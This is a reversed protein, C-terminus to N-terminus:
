EKIANIKAKITNIENNIENVFGVCVKDGVSKADLESIYSKLKVNYTRLNNILAYYLDRLRSQDESKLDIRYENDDIDIKLYNSEQNTVLTVLYEKDEM